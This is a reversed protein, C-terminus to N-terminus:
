FPLDPYMNENEQAWVVKDVVNVGGFRDGSKKALDSACKFADDFSPFMNTTNFPTDIEILIARGPMFTVQIIKADIIFLDFPRYVNCTPQTDRTVVVYVTDGPSPLGEPVLVKKLKRSRSKHENSGKVRFRSNAIEELFAPSRTNRLERRAEKLQAELAKVREERQRVAEAHADAINFFHRHSKDTGNLLTYWGSRMRGSVMTRDVKGGSVTYALEGIRPTKPIQKNQAMTLEGQTQSTPTDM